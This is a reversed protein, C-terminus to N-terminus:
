GQDLDIEGTMVPPRRRGNLWIMGAATILVLGAIAVALLLSVWWPGSAVSAAALGATGAVGGVLLGSLTPRVAPLGRQCLVVLSIAAMLLEALLTAAAAGVAGHEPILLLNFVLSTLAGAGAIWALPRDAHWARCVVMAVGSLVLAPLVWRLITLPPGAGAFRDGLILDLLGDIMLPALLSMTTALALGGSLIPATLQWGAAENGAARERVLRPFLAQLAMAVVLGLGALLGSAAHFRGVEADAWHQSIIIADSRSGIQQLLVYLTIPWTQQLTARWLSWDITPRLLGFRRAVFWGSIALSGAGAIVAGGGFGALGLGVLLAVSILGARLGQGIVILVGESVMTEAARLAARLSAALMELATALTIALTLVIALPQYDLWFAGIAAAVIALGLLLLRLPWLAGLYAAAPRGAAMARTTVTDVGVEALVVALSAVAVAKAYTGLGDPGLLRGLLLVVILSALRVGAQAGLLALTNITLRRAVPAEAQSSM